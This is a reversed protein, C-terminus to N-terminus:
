ARNKAPELHYIEPLADRGMLCQQNNNALSWATDEPSIVSTKM